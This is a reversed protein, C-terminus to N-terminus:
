MARTGRGDGAVLAPAGKAPMLTFIVYQGWAAGPARHHTMVLALPLPGPQLFVEPVEVTSPDTTEMVYGRKPESAAAVMARLAGMPAVDQGLVRAAATRMEASAPVRVPPALGRVAREERIRRFFLEEDAGHDDSAFLAYTTVVAGLAPAGDPISAGVAIVGAKPDLLATRGSPLEMASQVWLMADRTPAVAGIYLQGGRIMGGEVDWGALLGIAAKEATDDSGVAAANLVTGALRENVASQKAALTLPAMGALARVANVRDVLAGTFAPLTTVPAAAGYSKAKYAVSAATADGGYILVDALPHLLLRGRKLGAVEVWASADGAALECTLAFQPPRVGPDRVCVSVGYDGRNVRAVIQAYEERATGRLTVRRTADVSRPGPEIRAEDKAIAVVVSARKADRVAALGVLHHGRALPEEIANALADRARSLILEESVAAPAEVSWVLPTFSTTEGGCRALIFRRLSAVPLAHNKLHFRGIEAAACRLAACPLALGRGRPVPDSRRPAQGV